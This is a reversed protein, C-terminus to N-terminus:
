LPKELVIVLGVQIERSNDVIISRNIMLTSVSCTMALVTTGPMYTIVKGNYRENVYGMMSQLM